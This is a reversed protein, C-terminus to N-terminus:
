VVTSDTSPHNQLEVGSNGSPKQGGSNGGACQDRSIVYGLLAGLVIGAIGCLVALYSPMSSEEDCQPAAPPTTPDPVPSAAPPDTARSSDMVIDTPFSSGGLLEVAWDTAAAGYGEVLKKGAAVSETFHMGGWLRSEGCVRALETLNLTASWDAQPFMRSGISPAAGGASMAWDTDLETLNYFENIYTLTFDVVSQCISMSGSPYEAHPMVRILPSWHKTSVPLGDMGTVNKEAMVWASYSPPRILDHRVKEKWTVIVADTEIMTYVMEFLAHAALPTGFNNGIDTHAKMANLIKVLVKVKDDM